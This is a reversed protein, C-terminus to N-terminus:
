LEVWRIGAQRVQIAVRVTQPSDTNSNGDTFIIALKSASTRAGNSPQFAQNKLLNLADATNTRQGLYRLM